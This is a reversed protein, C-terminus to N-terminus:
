VFYLGACRTVSNNNFDADTILTGVGAAYRILAIETSSQIMQSQLDTIATAAMNNAQYACPTVVTAESAFPLGTFRANGTSSGKATMVASGNFTVARGIKTYLLPTSSYTIGTTGGGFSIGATGTGEEYDDLTNADSSANQTAPFKIQGAGSASIDLQGKVALVASTDLSFFATASGNIQVYAKNDGGIYFSVYDTTDSRVSVLGNSSSNGDQKIQFRATPSQGIGVDDGDNIIVGSNQVLKGTTLDFRAVANDTSSAPGDVKAADLARLRRETELKM